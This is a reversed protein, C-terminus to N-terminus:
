GLAVVVADITFMVFEAAALSASLVLSAYRWDKEVMLEERKSWVIFLALAALISGILLFHRKAEMMILHAESFPWPGGKILNGAKPYLAVYYYGGVVSSLVTGLFGGLTAWKARMIRTKTPRILELFAWGFAIFALEGFMLHLLFVTEGALQVM